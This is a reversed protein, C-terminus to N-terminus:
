RRERIFFIIIVSTNADFIPLNTTFIFSSMGARCLKIAADLLIQLEQDPLVPIVWRPNNIKEELSVLHERPFYLDQKYNAPENDHEAVFEHPSNCLCSQSIQSEDKQVPNSDGSSSQDPLQPGYAPVNFNMM